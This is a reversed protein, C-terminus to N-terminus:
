IPWKAHGHAGEELHVGGLHVFEVFQDLGECADVVSMFMFIDYEQVDTGANSGHADADCLVCLLDDCDLHCLGGALIGQM